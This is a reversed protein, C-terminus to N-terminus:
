PREVHAWAPDGPTYSGTPEPPEAAFGQISVAVGAVALLGVVAVKLGLLPQRAPVVPVAPVCSVARGLRGPGVRRPPHAEPFRQEPRGAPRVVRRRKAGAVDFVRTSM